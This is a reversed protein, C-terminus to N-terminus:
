YPTRGHGHAWPSNYADHNLMQQQGNQVGLNSSVNNYVSSGEGGSGGQAQGMGVPSSEGGGGGDGQGEQDDGEGNEEVPLREYTANSFTAAMLMVPGAAVLSGVVGGGVVQGQGGSLYITLGTAGPPSPGPLVSGTLSLIDFRGSLVVVAGPTTPQRLSVNLVTGTASLICIGRQRKRAFQLICDSIDSGTSVEMVHSRLANPSDRTIFIPPKPKNKSGSPRGRPRRTSSNTNTQDIAGGKPEDSNEKEDQDEDNNNNNNNLGTIASENNMSFGLDPKILPSSPNVSNDMGGLGIPGTWWRNAM